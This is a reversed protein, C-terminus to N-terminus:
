ILVEIAGDTEIYVRTKKGDDTLTQIVKTVGTVTVHRALIQEKEKEVIICPEKKGTECNYKLNSQHVYIRRTVGPPLFVETPKTEKDTSNTTSSM